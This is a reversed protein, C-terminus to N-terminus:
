LLNAEADTFGVFWQLFQEKKNQTEEFQSLNALKNNTIPVVTLTFLSFFKIM